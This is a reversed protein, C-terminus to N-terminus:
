EEGETRAGGLYGYKAGLPGGERGVQRHAEKEKESLNNWFEASNEEQTVFRCNDVAYDGLDNVRALCYAGNGRGVDWIDIGAEELLYDLDALTLLMSVPNGARDTKGHRCQYRKNDLYRKKRVVPDM